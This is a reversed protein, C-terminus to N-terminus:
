ASTLSYRRWRRTTIANLSSVSARPRLNNSTQDAVGQVPPSNRHMMTSFNLRLGAIENQELNDGLSCVIRVQLAINTKKDFLGELVLRKLDSM